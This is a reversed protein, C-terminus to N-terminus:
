EVDPSMSSDFLADIIDQTEERPTTVRLVTEGDTDTEQVVVIELNSQSETTTYDLIDADSLIEAEEFLTRCNPRGDDDYDVLEFADFHNAEDRTPTCKEITLVASPEKSCTEVTTSSSGVAQITMPSWPRVVPRRKEDDATDKIELVVRHYGHADITGAPPSPAPITASLTPPKLPGFPRPIAPRNIRGLMSPPPALFPFPPATPRSIPQQQHQLTPTSTSFQILPINTGGGSPRHHPSSISSFGSAFLTETSSPTQPEITTTSFTAPTSKLAKIDTTVEPNNSCLRKIAQNENTEMAALETQALEVALSLGEMKKKLKELMEQLQAKTDVSKIEQWIQLSDQDICKLREEAKEHDQKTLIRASKRLRKMEAQIARKRVRKADVGDIASRLEKHLQKFEEIDKHIRDTVFRHYVGAQSLMQRMDQLYTNLPTTIDLFQQLEQRTYDVKHRFAGIAALQAPPMAILPRILVESPVAADLGRAEGASSDNDDDHNNNNNNPPLTTTPKPCPRTTPRSCPQPRLCHISVDAPNPSTHPREGAEGGGGGGGRPRGGQLPPTCNGSRTDSNGTSQHNNGPAQSLPPPAAFPRSNGLQPSARLPTPADIPQNNRAAHHFKAQTGAISNLAAHQAKEAPALQQRIARYKNAAVHSDRCHQHGADILPTGRNFARNNGQEDSPQHM